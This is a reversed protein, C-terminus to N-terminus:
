DVQFIKGDERSESELGFLTTTIQLSSEDREVSQSKDSDVQSIDGAELLEREGTSTDTDTLVGFKDTLDSLSTKFDEQSIKGTDTSEVLESGSKIIDTSVGFM